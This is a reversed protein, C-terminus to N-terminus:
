AATEEPQQPVTMRAPLTLYCSWICHRTVRTTPRGQKLGYLGTAIQRPIGQYKRTTSRNYIPRKVDNATAAGGGTSETSQRQPLDVNQTHYPTVPRPHPDAGQSSQDYPVPNIATDNTENRIKRAHKNWAVPPFSPGFREVPPAKPSVLPASHHLSPHFCFTSNSYVFVWRKVNSATPIFRM